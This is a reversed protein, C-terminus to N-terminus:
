SVMLICWIVWSVWCCRICTSQRLFLLYIRGDSVTQIVSTLSSLCPISSQSTTPCQIRFGKSILISNLYSDASIWLTYSYYYKTKYSLGALPPSSRRRVTEVERLLRPRLFDPLPSQPPKVASSGPLPPSSSPKPSLVSSSNGGSAQDLSQKWLSLFLM